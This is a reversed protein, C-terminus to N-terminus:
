KKHYATRSPAQSIPMIEVRNINVNAPRSLVWEVAEAIDVPNLAEINEYIKSAKDKDGKFRVVSFDSGSVMGPEINSVRVSTGLVDSKLNLSLQEVFAKSAGYINGGKYPYTGAISGINVIHGCDREVMGPMLLHILYSVAICNVNIMTEWDDWDAEQAANIGLALGACNVLIDISKFAEPLDSIKETLLKKDTIDCDVIYCDTYKELEGKLIDLKDKSRAVLIIKISKAALTEAIARGIGSSAGTVLAVKYNM